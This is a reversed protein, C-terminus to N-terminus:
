DRRAIGPEPEPESPRPVLRLGAGGPGRRAAAVSISFLDGPALQRARGSRRPRASGGLERGAASPVGGGGPWPRALAGGGSPGPILGFLPARFAALLQAPETGFAIHRGDSWTLLDAALRGTRAVLLRRVASDWVIVLKDPALGRLCSEGVSRYAAAVRCAVACGAHGGDDLEDRDPEDRDPEGGGPGADGPRDRGARKGAGGGAGGGGAGNAHDHGILGPWPRVGRVAALAGRRAPETPRRGHEAGGRDLVGGVPWGAPSGAGAVLRVRAPRAATVVVVTLGLDDVAIPPIPDGAPGAATVVGFPGDLHVGRAAPLGLSSSALMSTLTSRRVDDGDLRLLGCCLTM